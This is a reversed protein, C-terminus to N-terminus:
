SPDSYERGSAKVFLRGVMDGQSWDRGVGGEGVHCGPLEWMGWPRAMETSGRGGLWVELLWGQRRETWPSEGAM